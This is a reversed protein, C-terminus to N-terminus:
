WSTNKSKAHSSKQSHFVMFHTKKVNPSFKNAKLWTSINSLEDNISWALTAIHSGSYFLNTDDAFLMPISELCVNYLDNIYIAFVAPALFPIDCTITKTSSVTGNYTVFQKRNSLYSRFWYLGHDRIGYHYLKELLIGHNVSDFAKSFDFFIGIVYDDDDIANTITDMMFMLAMDSSHLRRFGFQNNILIHQEQLVSHLRSYM